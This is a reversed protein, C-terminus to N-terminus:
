VIWVPYQSGKKAAQSSVWVTILRCTPEAPSVGVVDASAGGPTTPARNEAEENVYATSQSYEWMGLLNGLMRMQMDSPPMPQTAATMSRTSWRLWRPEVALAVWGHSTVDSARRRLKQNQARSSGDPKLVASMMPISLM